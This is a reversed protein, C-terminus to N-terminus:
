RLCDFLFHCADKGVVALAVTVYEIEPVTNRLERWGVRHSCQHFRHVTQAGNMM